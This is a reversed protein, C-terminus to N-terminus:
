GALKYFGVDVAGVRFGVECYALYYEWMKGFRRNFGLAELQPWTQLFRLRWQRLTQAYSDSFAEHYSVKLGVRM